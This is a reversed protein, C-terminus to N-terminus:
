RRRREGARPRGVGEGRPGLDRRSPGSSPPQYWFGIEDVGEKLVVFTFQTHGPAGALAKKPAIVKADGDQKLVAADNLDQAVWQYGTSSNSHLMVNVTDGVRAHVVQPLSTDSVTTTSAVATPSPSATAAHGGLRQRRVGGRGARAAGDGRDGGASREQRERGVETSRITANRTRRGRTVWRRM